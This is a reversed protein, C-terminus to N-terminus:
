FTTFTLVIVEDLVFSPFHLIQKLIQGLDNM